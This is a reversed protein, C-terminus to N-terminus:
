GASRYVARQAAGLAEGASTGDDIEALLAEREDIASDIRQLEYLLALDDKIM